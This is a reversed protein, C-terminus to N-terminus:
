GASAAFGDLPGNGMHNDDKGCTQCRRYRHGDDTREWAWHHRLNIRCLLPRTPTSTTDTMLDTEQTLERRLQWATSLVGSAYSLQRPRDLSSLDAYLEWRYRQRTDGPPILRTSLRVLGLAVPTPKM